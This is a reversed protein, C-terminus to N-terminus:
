PLLGKRQSNEEGREGCEGGGIRRRVEGDGQEEGGIGFCLCSTRGAVVEM